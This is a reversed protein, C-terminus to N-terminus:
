STVGFLEAAREFGIRRRLGADAVVSEVMAWATAPPTLPCDSGFVIRGPVRKVAYALFDAIWIGSTDLLM